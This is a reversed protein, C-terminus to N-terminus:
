KSTVGGFRRERNAYDALVEDLVAERGADAAAPLLLVLALAAVAIPKM